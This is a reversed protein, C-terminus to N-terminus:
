AAMRQAGADSETTALAASRTVHIPLLEILGTLDVFRSVATAEPPVLLELRLGRACQSRHALRLVSVVTTDMFTCESFDVVVDCVCGAGALAETLRQESSLDHDGSVKVVTLGQREVHTVIL